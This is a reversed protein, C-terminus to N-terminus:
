QNEISQFVFKWSKKVVYFASNEHNQEEDYM